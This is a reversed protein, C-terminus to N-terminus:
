EELEDQHPRKVSALVKEALLPPVVEYHDMEM